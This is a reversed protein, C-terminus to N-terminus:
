WTMVKWKLEVSEESDEVEVHPTNVGWSERRGWKGAETRPVGVPISHSLSVWVVGLDATNESLGRGEESGWKVGNRGKYERRVEQMGDSDQGLEMRENGSGNM